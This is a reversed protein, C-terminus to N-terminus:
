YLIIEECLIKANKEISRKNDLKTGLIFAPLCINILNKNLKLLDLIKQNDSKFNLFIPFQVKIKVNESFEEKKHLHNPPSPSFIINYNLLLKFKYHEIPSRSFSIEIEGNGFIKENLNSKINLPIKIKGEEQIVEM